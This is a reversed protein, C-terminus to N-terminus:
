YDKEAEMKPDDKMFVLSWVKIYILHSRTLAKFLSILHFHRLHYHMKCNYYVKCSYYVKLTARCPLQYDEDLFVLIDM